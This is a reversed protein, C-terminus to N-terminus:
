SMARKSNDEPKLYKLDEKYTKLNKKQFASNKNENIENLFNHVLQKKRKSLM